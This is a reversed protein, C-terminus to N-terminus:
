VIILELGLERITKAHQAELETDTIVVTFDGLEAFHGIQTQGFKSSDAVLVREKSCRIAARKTRVEYHNTCTVGLRPDVGAASIFAWQLRTRSLFEAAVEGEFVIPGRHFFGGPCVLQWQQKMSALNIINLGPSMLTLPMEPNLARLTAETTSGADLYVIDNAGVLSAAAKGIRTKADVHAGEALDISYDDEVARNPGETTRAVAVGHFLRILKREDLSRLDRRITMQTVEMRQALDRISVAGAEEVTSVIESLREERKAM